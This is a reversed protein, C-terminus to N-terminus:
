NQLIDAAGGARLTGRVAGAHVRHDAAAVFVQQSQGSAEGAVDGLQSDSVCCSFGTVTLTKPGSTVKHLKFTM